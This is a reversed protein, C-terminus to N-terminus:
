ITRRASLWVIPLFVCAGFIVQSPSISGGAAQSGLLYVGFGALFLALRAGLIAAVASLVAVVEKTPFLPPQAQGANQPHPANLRQWDHEIEESVLSLAM